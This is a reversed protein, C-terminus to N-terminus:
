HRHSSNLRTSKRDKIPFVTRHGHVIDFGFYIPIKNPSKLAREQMRSLDPEVVTNFIGGIEGAEIQDLVKDLTLEGGVSILRLQGVKEKITMKSMLDDIFAKKEENNSNQASLSFSFIFFVFFLILKKM